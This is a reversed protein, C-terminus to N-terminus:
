LLADGPGPSTSLEETFGRLMEGLEALGHLAHELEVGVYFQEGEARCYIAEGLLLSNQAEIKLATGTGIAQGVELGIGRGSFNRIRGPLRTDVPGFLTIWAPQNAAFRAERRQNMSVM